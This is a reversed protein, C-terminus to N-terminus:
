EFKGYFYYLLFFIIINGKLSENRILVLLPSFLNQFRVVDSQTYHVFEYFLGSPLSHNKLKEFLAEYYNVAVLETLTGELLLVLAACLETRIASLIEKILPTSCRKTYTKEHHEMRNYSDILYQLCNSATKAEFLQKSRENLNVILDLAEIILDSVLQKVQHSGDSIVCSLLPHNPWVSSLQISNKELKISIGLIRALTFHLFDENQFNETQAQMKSPTSSSEDLEMPEIKRPTATEVCVTDMPYTKNPTTPTYLAPVNEM